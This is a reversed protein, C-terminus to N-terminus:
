GRRRQPPRCARLNFEPLIRIDSRFLSTRRKYQSQIAEAFPSVVLVASSALADSWPAVGAAALSVPDLSRLPVLKATVGLTEFLQLEQAIADGWRGLVQSQRIASLQMQTLSRMQRVTPPWLGANLKAHLRLKLRRDGSIGLETTM